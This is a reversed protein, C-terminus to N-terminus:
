IKLIKIITHLKYHYTLYILFITMFYMCDYVVWKYAYSNICSSQFCHIYTEDTFSFYSLFALLIDWNLNLTVCFYMNWYEFHYVYSQSAKYTNSPVDPISALCVSHSNVPSMRLIGTDSSMNPLHVYWWFVNFAM